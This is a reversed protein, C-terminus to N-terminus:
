LTRSKHVFLKEVRTDQKVGQQSNMGCKIEKRWICVFDAPARYESVLVFNGRKEQIRCWEWFLNSDFQATGNYGLTDQYPPDCYILSNQPINLDRYDSYYIETNNKCKFEAWDKRLGNLAEKIHDENKNPNYNAYGNFMKGGYSGLIGVLAKTGDSYKQSNTKYSERVDIYAEKSIYEPITLTGDKLEKWMHAVYRNGDSGIKRDAVIHKFINGGGIFPEVYTRNELNAHIIGVIDPAIRKKSGQYRM